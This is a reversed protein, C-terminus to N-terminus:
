AIGPKAAAGDGHGGAEGNEGDAEQEAHAV